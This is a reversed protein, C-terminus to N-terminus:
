LAPRLRRPQRPQHLQPCQRDATLSYKKGSVGGGVAAVVAAASDAVAAADVVAALDAVVAAADVVAAASDVVAAVVPAAATRDAPGGPGVNPNANPDVKEGWGWTRSIRINASFQAPGQGYNVPIVPQGVAPTLNFNGWKTCRINAATCSAGAPAFAPRADYIGDGEYQAGTTIDFPSGSSM